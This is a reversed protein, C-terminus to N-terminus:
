FLPNITIYAINCPNILSKFIYINWLDADTAQKYAICPLWSIRFTHKLEHAIVALGATIQKVNEMQCFKMVMVARTLGM